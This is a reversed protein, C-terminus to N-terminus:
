RPPQRDEERRRDEIHALIRSVIQEVDEEVSVALAEDPGPAELAELQSRLLSAKMYHGHRAQMRAWILDFDGHLYIFRLGPNGSRLQDRYRRKLASCALVGTEGRVRHDHILDHLRALWPARDEDDLPVGGAMKAVNHPPHFDDGDFFPCGLREALAQGVTTKGCGAVGMVVFFAM